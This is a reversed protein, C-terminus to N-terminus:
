RLFVLVLVFLRRAALCLRNDLLGHPRHHRGREVCLHALGACMQAYRMRVTRETHKITALQASQHLLRQQRRRIGFGAALHTVLGACTRELRQESM